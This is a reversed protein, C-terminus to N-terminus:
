LKLLWPTIYAKFCRPSSYRAQLHRADMGYTLLEIKVYQIATRSLTDANTRVAICKQKCYMSTRESVCITGVLGNCRCAVVIERLAVGVTYTLIVLLTFSIMGIVVSACIGM